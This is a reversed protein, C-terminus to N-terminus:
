TKEFADMVSKIVARREAPLIQWARAFEIAEDTLDDTIRTSEDKEEFLQACILMSLLYYCIEGCYDEVEAMERLPIVMSNRAMDVVPLELKENKLAWRAYKINFKRYKVVASISM